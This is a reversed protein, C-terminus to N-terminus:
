GKRLFVGGSKRMDRITEASIETSQLLYTRFLGSIEAIRERLRRERM